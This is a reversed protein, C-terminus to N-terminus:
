GDDFLGADILIFSSVYLSVFTLKQQVAVIICCALLGSVLGTIEPSTSIGAFIGTQSRPLLYCALHEFVM